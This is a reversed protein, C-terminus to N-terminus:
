SKKILKKMLRGTRVVMPFLGTAVLVLEVRGRPSLRHYKLAFLLNKRLERRLTKHREAFKKKTEKEELDLTQVLHKQSITLLYRADPELEPLTKAIDQHVLAANEVGHFSKESVSSSTISEERHLYHCVPKPLLAGGGALLVLRYTTPVDEVVRGVPYRIESFLERAYLKDWAASDLHEWRFMRGVLEKAPVFEEKEPCLGLTTIGTAEEEDYRGACVLKANYKEAAALMAAYTDPEIWDDSDVFAFYDGAAIDIGANRADSLGGNKKHIVKVRHDAQAFADCIKGCGDPSGDDVLIIELNTYSQKLISDVCKKLYREVKYIPVIVSILPTNEM